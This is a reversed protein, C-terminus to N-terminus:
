EGALEISLVLRFSGKARRCIYDRHVSRVPIIPLIYSFNVNAGMRKRGKGGLKREMMMVFLNLLHSVSQM